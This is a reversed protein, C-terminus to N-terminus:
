IILDRLSSAVSYDKISQSVSHEQRATTVFRLFLECGATLSIANTTSTQLATKGAKIQEILQYMTDALCVKLKM